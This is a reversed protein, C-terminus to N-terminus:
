SDCSIIQSQSQKVFLIQFVAEDISGRRYFESNYTVKTVDLFEPFDDQSRRLQNISTRSLLENSNTKEKGTIFSANFGVYSSQSVSVVSNADSLCKSQLRKTVIQNVILALIVSCALNVALDCYTAIEYQKYSNLTFFEAINVIMIFFYAIIHWIIMCKKVLHDNAHQVIKILRQFGWVLVFCSVALTLNDLYGFILYYKNLKSHDYLVWDVAPILVTILSVVINVANLRCSYTDPSM